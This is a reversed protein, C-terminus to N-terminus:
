TGKSPKKKILKRQGLKRTRSMTDRIKGRASARSDPLPRETLQASTLPSEEGMERRYEIAARMRQSLDPDPEPGRVAELEEPTSSPRDVWELIKNGVKVAVMGVHPATWPRLNRGRTTHIIEKGDCFTQGPLLESREVELNELLWNKDRSLSNSDAVWFKGDFLFEVEGPTGDGAFVIECWLPGKTACPYGLSEDMEPEGELFLRLKM